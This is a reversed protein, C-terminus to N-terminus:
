GQGIISKNIYDDPFREVIKFFTNRNTNTLQFAETYTIKGTYIGDCLTCMLYPSLRSSKTAYYDGGSRKKGKGKNDLYYKKGAEAVDEYEDKSMLKNDLARRAVVTHSCNFKRSIAEVRDLYGGERGSWENLFIDNPLLLEAAVANCIKEIQSAGDECIDPFPQGNGDFLNSQGLWVHVTEHLLSFLRSSNSDAANIFILPATDDVIAFARFEEVDLPRSTNNGVIGSMMVVIGCGELKRRLFSFAEGPARFETVWDDDLKLHKRIMSAITKTDSMDKASGVFPLSGFDTEHRYEVLWDYVRYMDAITDLLNRSPKVVGNGNFTRYQLVEYDESPQVKLFFRGIPIYSIRSFKRLQPITPKADGSIWSQVQKKFKEDLRDDPTQDLAWQVAKPEIDVYTSAM